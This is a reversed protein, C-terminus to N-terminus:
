TLAKAEFYDQILKISNTAAEGIKEAAQGITQRNTADMEMLRLGVQTQFSNLAMIIQSMDGMTGHIRDLPRFLFLAALDAIGFGAAILSQLEEIRGGFAAAIPVSLLVIGLAFMVISLIVIIWYTASLKQRLGDLEGKNKSMTVQQQRVIFDNAKKREDDTMLITDAVKAVMKKDSM